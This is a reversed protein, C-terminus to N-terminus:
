KTASRLSPKCPSPPAKRARKHSGLDGVMDASSRPREETASKQRPTEVAQEETSAVMCPTGASPTVTASLSLAEGEDDDVEITEIGSGVM